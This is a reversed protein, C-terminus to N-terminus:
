AGAGTVASKHSEAAPGVRAAARELVEVAAERLVAGDVAVAPSAGALVDACRMPLAPTGLCRIIDETSAAYVIRRVGAWFLAGACMACPEGSAYVTAGRLVNSGFRAAAQRILAIEAHGTCDGTTIQDNGAVLLLENGAVLAAGFPMDGAAMANESAIIAARMWAEDDEPGSM